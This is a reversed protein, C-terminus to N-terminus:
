MSGDVNEKDDEAISHIENVLDRLEGDVDSEPVLLAMLGIVRHATEVRNRLREIEDVCFSLATVCGIPVRGVGKWAIYAADPDDRVLSYHARWCAITKKWDKITSM